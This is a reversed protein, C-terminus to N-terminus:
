QIASPISGVIYLLRLKREFLIRDAELLALEKQQLKLRFDAYEKNSIRGNELMTKNVKLMERAAERDIRALDSASLAIRVASLGQQIDLKLESKMRQLRYREESVEQKSQAVRASTRFGNFLPVQISIGILYNNREFRNFYDEYKNSRSFLAYETIVNLRPWREGKEAEVHFEKARLTAEAKLIEPARELAQRYLTEEDLKFLPSDIQPEVTRIAVTHPMGTLERLETEGLKVQETAVLLQQRASAAATRALAADVERVRGADLLSEMLERQKEAEDLGEMALPLTKRARHFDCYVLATKLALESRVSESGLCSARESERAERILNSNKKSFVSQSAGIQFISPASGEISLPFGNNYALGTGTVVQPLNLSRSERVAEKARTAQAEAAQVDPSQELAMRVAEQITLTRIEPEPDTGGIRAASFSWSCFCFAALFYFFKRLLRNM